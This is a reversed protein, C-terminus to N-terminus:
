QLEGKAGSLYNELIYSAAVKDVVGKRDQRRMDAEILVRHAEMTTFREDVLVIPLTTVEKLAGVFRRTKESQLGEAGSFHLPIGCVIREAGRTKALNALYVVDKKTGQRNYTEVPLPIMLPKEAFAVGIRKDGIDFAIVSEM